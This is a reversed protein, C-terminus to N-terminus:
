VSQGQVVVIVTVVVVAMAVLMAVVVRQLQRHNNCVAASASHVAELDHVTWRSPAEHECDCVARYVRAPDPRGAAAACRERETNRPKQCGGAHM